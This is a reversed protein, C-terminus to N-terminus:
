NPPGHGAAVKVVAALQPRLTKEADEALEALPEDNGALRALVGWRGLAEAMCMAIFDLGEGITFHPQLCSDMFRVRHDLYEAVVLRIRQRRVFGEAHARGDTFLDRETDRIEKLLAVTGPVVARDGVREAAEQLILSDGILEGLRQELLAGADRRDEPLEEPANMRALDHRRSARLERRVRETLSESAGAPSGPRNEGFTLLGPRQPPSEPGNTSSLKEPM